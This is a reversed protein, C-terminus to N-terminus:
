PKSISFMDSYNKSMMVSEKCPLVINNTKSLEIQQPGMFWQAVDAIIEITTTKNETVKLNPLVLSVKRLSNYPYLYGGIHFEFENNHTKCVKSRGEIKAAIYGTNWAWYMGKVPDLDGDLAGSTNTLSDIGINFNIKDYSGADINKITFSLTKEEDVNILHYSKPEFFFNSGQLEFASLYFKFLDIYLSDGNKNVYKKEGLVLPEGNFVPKIKVTLTGSNKQSFCFLSVSLFLISFNIKM